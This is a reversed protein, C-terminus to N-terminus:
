IVNAIARIRRLGVTVAWSLVLTGLFALLAKIAPAMDPGLLAYQMWTVIVYHFIYIGYSNESLSDLMALPRAGFRLFVAISAVVLSACCVALALEGVAPVPTSLSSVQTTAMFSVSALLAWAWWFRALPSGERLIGQDLGCVGLAVGFLFYTLYHLIRSAQFVFPGVGIWTSPGLLLSMPMYVALSALLLVTFFTVPHRLVGSAGDKSSRQIWGARWAIVFLGNFMLLVWLFWLPGASEYGSRILRLSFTAFSTDGGFARSSQLLGAYYTAPVLLIVGVVFPIGLRKLRAGLYASPGRRGLSGWAFLGSVLFLLSMLFIDNFWAVTDLAAWREGNVVPSFTKVPNLPNLYAFTTYPIIAHHLVVLVIAAARLYDFEVRRDATARM